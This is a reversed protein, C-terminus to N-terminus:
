EGPEGCPSPGRSPVMPLFALEAVQPPGPLTTDRATSLYIQKGSSIAFRLESTVASLCRRASILDDDRSEVTRVLERSAEIRNLPSRCGTAPRRGPFEARILRYDRGITLSAQDHSVGHLRAPSGRGALVGTDPRRVRLNHRDDVVVAHGGRVRHLDHKNADILGAM